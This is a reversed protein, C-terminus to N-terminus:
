QDDSARIYERLDQFRPDLRLTKIARSVSQKAWPISVNYLDAIDVYRMAEFDGLGFRAQLLAIDQAPLGKLWANVDSEMFLQRDVEGPRSSGARAQRWDPLSDISIVKGRSRQDMLRALKKKSVKLDHMLEADTPPRKKDASIDVVAKALHGLELHMHCPLRISDGKEQISRTVAQKIWVYAYTSFRGGSEPDFLEVARVLGLTGEQVLDLLTLSGGRYQYRKAISVVLRLNSLTMKQKAARAKRLALAFEKVSEFGCTKAWEDMTAKRGLSTLGYTRTRRPRGARGARRVRGEMEDLMGEWRVLMQVQRGLHLEEEPTLLDFNLAGLYSTLANSYRREVQRSSQVVTERDTQIDSSGISADVNDLNKSESNWDSPIFFGEYGSDM